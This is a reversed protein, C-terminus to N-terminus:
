MQCSSQSKAAAMCEALSYYTGLNVQKSEGNSLVVTLVLTHETHYRYVDGPACNCGRSIVNSQGGGNEELRRVRYELDSVRRELDYSGRDIDLSSTRDVGALEGGSEVDQAYSWAAVVLILSAMIICKKM